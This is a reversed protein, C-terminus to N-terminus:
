IQKARPNGTTIGRAQQAFPDNSTLFRGYFVFAAENNHQKFVFTLFQHRRAEELRKRQWFMGSIVAPTPTDVSRSRAQTEDALFGNIKGTSKDIQGSQRHSRKCNTIVTLVVIRHKLINQSNKSYSRYTFKM